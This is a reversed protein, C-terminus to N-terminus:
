CGFVVVQAEGFAYQAANLGEEGVNAAQSVLQCLLLM